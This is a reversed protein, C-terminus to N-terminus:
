NRKVIKSNFEETTAKQFNHSCIFYIFLYLLVQQESERLLNILKIFKQPKWLSFLFKSKDVVKVVPKLGNAGFIQQQHFEQLM